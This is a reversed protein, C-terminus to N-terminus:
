DKSLKAQYENFYQESIARADALTVDVNINTNHHKEPANDGQMKNMVEIASIRDAHKTATLAIEKLKTLKWAFDVQTKAISKERSKEIEAKMYSKTLLNSAVKDPHKTKYGALQLAKTANGIKLYTQLFLLQKPNLKTKINQPM